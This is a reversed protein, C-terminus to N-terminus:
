RRELPACGNDGSVALVMVTNEVRDYKESRNTMVETFELLVAVNTGSYLNTSGGTQNLLHVPM